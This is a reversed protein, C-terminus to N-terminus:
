EARQITVKTDLASESPHEESGVEKEHMLQQYLLLWQDRVAAWTYKPCTEYAWAIINACLEKDELLRIAAAAMSKYDGRRVVLGTKEHNVIHPIGGANTTVVPLGSAFSELISLPMNDIDSGNLFIDAADYLPSMDAPLVLGTFEVNRLGLEQALQNLATRERGNGALTLSADPYKQQIISFARLICAVNYLRYLNRNSFFRPSLPIRERFKFQNLDITNSIPRAHLGFKSFVGVLYNSPVAIRDALRMLPVATRPWCRLHDEAEGSHYNLVVKKGFLKSILIAPAPALLFSFYSASFTHVIDYRPVRTILKAWYLLSTVITRIYKISQLRALPGPLRPNHPLFSVDIIPEEALHEVLSAAQIAQGGLIGLSPAVILVRLARGAKAKSTEYHSHLRKSDVAETKVALMGEPPEAKVLAADLDIGCPTGTRAAELMRLCVITARAGDRVTIEPSRGSRISSFFSELQSAYGKEAWYASRRRRLTSVIELRKFDDVVATIGKAFVEVREGSSRKSGITSYNLTGISGDAFVLNAVLNNEGIPDHSGTPLCYASVEVPEAGLFWYMLDIFHVAEGLIAGGIAPDAMWYSGSIDPSSVRCNIVVPGVRGALARKQEVYFPAFRRNFGVTLQKGTQEVTQYLTSCESETLAMPKEVFVHKGAQLAALTQAYHHQNRSLVMVVDVDTDRLIEEYDSCCYAAGFRRAYTKGRAGSSSCIAQLRVNPIKKLNPLHAWRALNGAGVVAVGLDSKTLPSYKVAVRRQPKFDQFADFSKAAPYSLLVGLSNSSLDMVTEYARAAEDLPFEHTVLLDLNIRKLAVLRLFEEMNRKETWRVYSFPYDHGQQEYEPDYSGPGYARSMFLQIEKMYMEHWPFDLEVAGVIVMRGRDRCLQLAMHSPASSKSAAAVIVCDAGRGNTLANIDEAVPLDGVLGLDAGLKRSLEVREPRLDVGIVVAGQLRVLQAVLQGVLGLGIVVVVEGVGIQSIRVANLAISGLTTFSAHQLPVNEPVKVVLNQGVLVTEGHGTGEGGYAVHDGLNLEQISRDKDVVIGAGSYGLAAYEQLKAGVEALTRAPGTMKMAEWIKSLHSPNEALERLVGEDHISATETGSSILSFLPNILVHHPLLVPVPVEDVVIDKLGKRFVQKM